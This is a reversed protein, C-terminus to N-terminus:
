DGEHSLRLGELDDLAKELLQKDSQRAIEQTVVLTLEAVSLANFVHRLQLMVHFEDWIRSVMQMALLSDGGLDFFSDHIDVTERRLLSCWISALRRETETRPM